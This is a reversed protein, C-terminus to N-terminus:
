RGAPTELQRKVWEPDVPVGIGAIVVAGVRSPGANKYFGPKPAVFSVTMDAVIAAGDAGGCIEGTDAELGSPVDLCVVAARQANIQRVWDRARGSIPRALGTGFLADVIVVGGGTSDSWAAASWVRSLVGSREMRHFALRADGALQDGPELTWVEVELDRALQRAVVFGDGGNNGMGAAIFVRKLSRARAFGLIERAAAAGANEMLLDGPIGLSEIAHADFARIVSRPLPEKWTQGEPPIWRTQAPM